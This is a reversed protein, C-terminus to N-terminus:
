LNQSDEGESLQGVAKQAENAIAEDSVNIESYDRMAKSLVKPDICIDITKLYSATEWLVFVTRASYEPLACLWEKLM